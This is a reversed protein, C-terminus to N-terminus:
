AASRACGRMCGCRATSCRAMWVWCRPSASARPLLDGDDDRAGLTWSLIGQRCLPYLDDLLARDGSWLYTELVAATFQPTEQTNGANFVRGTCSLEHIIRGSNHNHRDSVAALLRLTLAALEFGGQPLLGRLAFASDCGFWWPFEPLGAGLGRGIGPVDRVLWDYVCRTWDWARVLTDDAVDLRSLSLAAELRRQKAEILEDAHQLLDRLGAVAEGAGTISGYAALRLLTEGGAPVALRFRQAAAASGPSLAVPGYVDGIRSELPPDLSGWAVWWPGAPDTAVMTAGGNAQEITDIGDPREDLWGPYLRSHALFIVDVERAQGSQDSLHLDILLAPQGDPVVLTRTLRLGLHPPDFYQRVGWPLSEFHAAPPLWSSILPADTDLDPGTDTDIDAHAIVGAVSAPTIACWFGDLLKHPHMWLGGMDGPIHEGIRPFGGDQSGILYARDGAAVYPDDLRATKSLTPLPLSPTMGQLRISRSSM